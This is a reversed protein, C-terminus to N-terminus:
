KTLSTAYLVDEYKLTNIEVVDGDQLFLAFSTWEKNSLNQQTLNLTTKKARKTGETLKGLCVIETNGNKVYEVISEIEFYSVSAKSESKTIQEKKVSSKKVPPKHVPAKKTLTKKGIPKKAPTKKTPAKKTKKSSRKMAKKRNRAEELELKSDTLADTHGVSKLRDAREKIQKPIGTEVDLELGTLDGTLYKGQVTKWLDGLNPDSLEELPFHSEKLWYSDPLTFGSRVINDAQRRATREGVIGLNIAYELYWHETNYDLILVADYELDELSERILSIDGKMLNLLKPEQKEIFVFERESHDYKFFYFSQESM